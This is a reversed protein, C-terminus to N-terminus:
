PHRAHRGAAFRVAGTRCADVCSGCLVCEPGGPAGGAVMARVDLGAPCASRCRDCGRCREADGALGLVPLRLASAARAAATNLPAWWCLARCFGRKGLAVALLTGLGFMAVYVYAGHLDDWSVVHETKYLPDFRALGGGRRVAWVIAGVWAACLLWRVAGARGVAVRRRGCAGDWLEQLAGVPCIWGCAARGLVLGAATWAIWFALSFPAVRELAGYVPLAPSYYNFTLPFLLLFALLLTRRLRQRPPLAETPTSM